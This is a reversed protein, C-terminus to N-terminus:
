QWSIELFYDRSGGGDDHVEIIATFDNGASPQQVVTIKNSRGEIKTVKVTVGTEPLPATFSYRGSDTANGEVAKQEVTLGRITLHIKNDVSGYWYVKGSNSVAEQAQSPSVLLFACFLALLLATKM